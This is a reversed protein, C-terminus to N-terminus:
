AGRVRGLCLGTEAPGEVVGGSSFRDFVQRAARVFEVYLPGGEEPAYSATSLSGIFEEWTQRTAFAYTERLFDDSGLYFGIGKGRGIMLDETDTQPPFIGKLAAGVLPDTGRNRLTALWGDPKLIRLFERRTPEPDFWNLAQAVVILDVCDDPLTTAEARGDIVQCTPRGGLETIAIQRMGANPEVAFVQKVRGILHATLIGTGAGIDAVVSRSSVETRDFLTQVAQPAYDWRYQAYRKAKSSFVDVTDM